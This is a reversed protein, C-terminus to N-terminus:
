KLPQFIQLFQDSFPYSSQWFTCVCCKSLQVTLKQMVKNVYMYAHPFSACCKQNSLLFKLGSLTLPVRSKLQGEELASYNKFNQCTISKSKEDGAESSGEAKGKRMPAWGCCRSQEGKWASIPGPLDPLARELDAMGKPLGSCVASTASGAASSCGCFASQRWGKFSPLVRWCHFICEPFTILIVAWTERATVEGATQNM